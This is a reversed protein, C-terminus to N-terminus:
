MYLCNVTLFILLFVHNNNNLVIYYRSKYYLCPCHKNALAVSHVAVHLDM